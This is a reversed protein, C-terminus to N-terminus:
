ITTVTTSRVDVTRTTPEPSKEPLCAEVVNQIDSNIEPWYITQRARKKTREIGQHSSHLKALVERCKAQPIVIKYSDLLILGDEVSLQDKLKKFHKVSSHLSSNAFDNQIAKILQQSAKDSETSEKIEQFIPDILHQGREEQEGGQFIASIKRELFNQTNETIVDLEPDNCPARSLADPIAHDKGRGWIVRFVYGSLKEKLRQIRPNDIM